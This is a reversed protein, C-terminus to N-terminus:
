GLTSLSLSSIFRASFLLRSIQDLSPSYFVVLLIGKSGVRDYSIYTYTYIYIYIYTHILICVCVGRFEITTLLAGIGVIGNGM